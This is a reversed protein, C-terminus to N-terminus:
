TQQNPISNIITVKSNTLKSNIITIKSNIITLKSNIINMHVSHTNIMERKKYVVPRETGGYIPM